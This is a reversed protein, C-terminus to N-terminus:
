FTLFSRHKRMSREPITKLPPMLLAGLKQLTSFQTVTFYHPATQGALDIETVELKPIQPPQRPEQRAPTNAQPVPQQQPSTKPPSAQGAEVVAPVAPAVLLSQVFNRRKM